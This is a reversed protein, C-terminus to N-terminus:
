DLGGGSLRYPSRVEGSKDGLETLALPATSVRLLNSDSLKEM